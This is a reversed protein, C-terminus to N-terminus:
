GEVDNIMLAGPGNGEFDRMVWVHMLRGNASRARFGFFVTGPESEDDIIASHIRAGQLRRKIEDINYQIDPRM